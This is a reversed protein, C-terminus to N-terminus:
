FERKKKSQIMVNESHTVFTSTWQAHYDKRSITVIHRLDIM